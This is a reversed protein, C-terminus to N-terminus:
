FNQLDVKLKKMEKIYKKLLTRVKARARHIRVKVNSISEGTIDAIEKYTMCDYERLIFIEKYDKPLKAMAKKILTLLETNDEVKDGLPHLDEEFPVTDIEFIKIRRYHKRAIQLLRMPINIIIVESHIINYFEIFTEQLIDKALTEDDTMRLCYAWVKPSLRDYLVSFALESDKVKDGVIAYLEHDSYTKLTKERINSRYIDM